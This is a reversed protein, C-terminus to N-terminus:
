PQVHMRAPVSCHSNNRIALIIPQAFVAEFEEELARRLETPLIGTWTQHDKGAPPPSRPPLALRAPNFFTVYDGKAFLLDPQM